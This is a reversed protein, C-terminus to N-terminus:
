DGDLSNFGVTLGLNRSLSQATENQLLTLADILQKIKTREPQQKVGEYLPALRNALELCTKIKLTLNAADDPPLAKAFVNLIAEVVALNLKLNRLPRESRWGELLKPNANEIKSRLAPLLKQDKLIIFTTLFNSFLRNLAATPDGYHLSDGTGKQFNPWIKNNWERAVQSSIAALNISITRGVSCAFDDQLVDHRTFLLRELAPLGQVAVTTKSFQHLSLADPNKSALLRDLSRGVANRREPWHNFRDRRLEQIMPGSAWHFVAGWADATQHYAEQLAGISLADPTDCAEIWINKQHQAAHALEQYDPLIIQETLDLLTDQHTPQAYVKQSLSIALLFLLVQKM